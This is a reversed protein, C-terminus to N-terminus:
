HLLSACTTIIATEADCRRMVISVVGDQQQYLQPGSITLTPLVPATTLASQRWQHKCWRNMDVLANYTAVFNLEVQRIAVRLLSPAEM